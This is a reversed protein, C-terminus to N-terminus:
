ESFIHFSLINIQCLALHLIFSLLSLPFPPKDGTLSLSKRQWQTCVDSEEQIWIDADITHTHTSHSRWWLKSLTLSINFTCSNFNELNSGQFLPFCSSSNQSAKGPPKLTSM